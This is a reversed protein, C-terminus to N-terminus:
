SLQSTHVADVIIEFYKIDDQLYATFYFKNYENEQIELLTYEMM